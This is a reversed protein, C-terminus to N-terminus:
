EVHFKITRRSLPKLHVKLNAFSVFCMLYENTVDIEGSDEPPVTFM